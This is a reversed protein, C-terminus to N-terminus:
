LNNSWWTGHFGHPVVWGRGEVEARAIEKFSIGDIIVLASSGNVGDLEVMLVVGDDERTAGPRPVFIPESPTCKPNEFRQIADEPDDLKAYLADLDVKIICDWLTSLDRSSVGYAYKNPKLSYRPSITPLEIVCKTKLITAIGIDKAATINPLTVRTVYSKGDLPKTATSSRLVDIYFSNVVEHTDYTGLDVIVDDGDDYSNIHHFAYFADSEFKRTVGGKERDVVYWLTKRNPNWAKFSQTLNRNFPIAAGNLKYDAQWVCFIFYKKTLCVSHIYAPPADTITALVQQTADNKETPPSLKFLIYTPTRGFRLTYNFLEGTDLDVAAHSASPIGQAAPLIDTYSLSKVPDLTVPDLERIVNVDTKVYLNRLGNKNRHSQDALKQGVPFNTSLTVNVNRKAMSDERGKFMTFFKHFFSECLDKQGFSGSVVGSKQISQIYEDCTRRSRYFVRGDSTIEFRHQLAFGDFRDILTRTCRFSYWHQVKYIQGNPRKTTYSGPGTRYLIGNVYDPIRGTVKLEIPTRTEPIDGFGADNPWDNFHKTTQSGTKEAM